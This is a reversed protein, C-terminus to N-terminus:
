CTFTTLMRQTGEESAWVYIFRELRQCDFLVMVMIKGASTQAKFKKEHPVPHKWLMSSKNLDAECYNNLTEESAV